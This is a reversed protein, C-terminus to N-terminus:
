RSAIRDLASRIGRLEALVALWVDTPPQTPPPETPPPPPPPDTPPAAGIFDRPEMEIFVQPGDPPDSINIGRDPIKLRTDDTGVGTLVDFAWLKGEGHAAIADKSEPRGNGARKWGFKPGHSFRMQQALKGTWERAQRDKADGHPETTPHPVRQAFARITAKEAETLQMFTEKPPDIPTTPPDTSRLDGADLTLTALGLTGDPQYYAVRVAGDIWGIDWDFASGSSTTIPWGRLRNGWELLWLEGNEFVTAVLLRAGTWLPVPHSCSRGQATLIVTQADPTARGYIHGAWEWVLTQSSWRPRTGAGLHTQSAASDSCGPLRELRLHGTELVRVALTGGVSVAPEFWGGMRHYVLRQPDMVIFPGNARDPTSVVYGGRADLDGENAPMLSLDFGSSRAGGGRGEPHRAAIFRDTEWRPGHGGPLEAVPHGTRADAVVIRLRRTEPPEGYGLTYVVHRGDPSLRM